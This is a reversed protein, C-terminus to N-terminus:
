SAPQKRLMWNTRLQCQWDMQGLIMTQGDDAVTGLTFDVLTGKQTRNIQLTNPARRGLHVM